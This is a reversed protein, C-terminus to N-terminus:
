SPTRSIRGRPLRTTSAKYLMLSRRKMVKPQMHQAPPTGRAPCVNTRDSAKKGALKIAKAARKKPNSEKTLFSLEASTLGQQADQSYILSGAFLILVLLSLARSSLKKM